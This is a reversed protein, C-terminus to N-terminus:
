NLDRSDDERWDVVQVDVTAGPPNNAFCEDMHFAVSGGLDISKAFATGITNRGGTGSLQGDPVFISAVLYPTSNGGQYSLNHGAGSVVITVSKSGCTLNTDLNRSYASPFDSQRLSVSATDWFLVPSAIGLTSLTTLRTAILSPDINYTAQAQAQTRLADYQADTLGRPRYGYVKTMDATTFKSTTPYAPLGSGRVYKQFCSDGSVLPGGSGSQDFPYTANCPVATKHVPGGGSGSGCTNNATSIDGTAHAATPQTYILDLKTRGAASDYAFRVGSGGSSDSTRNQVCGNTFLSEQNVGVSGSGTFTEAFVGMPFGYPALEVDVAVQRAGPGNGSVGTSHIRFRGTCPKPPSQQRGACNAVYSRVTGIWVRFCDSASTCAGATGDLRVQRPNTASIWSPGAGQCTVGPLSGATPEVCTLSGINAGRLYTIAQTVGAESTALAALAQRDRSTNELNNLTIRTATLTLASVVAMVFIVTVIGVGADGRTRQLISDRM